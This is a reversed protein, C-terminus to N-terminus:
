DTCTKVRTYTCELRVVAVVMSQLHQNLGQQVQIHPRHLSVCRQVQSGEFAMHLTHIHEDVLSGGDQKLVVCVFSCGNMSCTPFCEM